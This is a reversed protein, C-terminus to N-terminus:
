SIEEDFLNKEASNEIKLTERSFLSYGWDVVCTLWERLFHVYLGLLHCVLPINNFLNGCKV